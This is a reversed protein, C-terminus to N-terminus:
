IIQLYPVEAVIGRGALVLSLSIVDIGGLGDQHWPQTTLERGSIDHADSDSGVAIITATGFPAFDGELDGKERCEIPGSAQDAFRSFRGVSRMTGCQEPLPKVDIALGRSSQVDGSMSTVLREDVALRDAIM